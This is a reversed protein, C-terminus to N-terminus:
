PTLTAAEETWVHVTLIIAEYTIGGYVATGIEWRLPLAKMVGSSGLGLKSAGELQRLLVGLWKELATYERPIDAENKAYYFTVQFEHEGQVMGGTYTVEGSQPWVIVYPTNGIANPPQATSTTINKLGAPPTVVSPDFRDALGDAISLFNM